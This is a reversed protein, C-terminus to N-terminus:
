IEEVLKWMIFNGSQIEFRGILLFFFRGILVLAFLAQSFFIKKKFDM